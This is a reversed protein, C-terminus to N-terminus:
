RGMMRERAEEEAYMNWREEIDPIDQVTRYAEVESYGDQSYHSDIREGTIWDFVEVFYLTSPDDPEPNAHIEFRVDTQGNAVLQEIYCHDRWDQETIATSPMSQFSCAELPKTLREFYPSKLAQSEDRSPHPTNKM